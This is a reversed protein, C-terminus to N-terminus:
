SIADKKACYQTFKEFFINKQPIRGSVRAFFVIELVMLQLFEQLSRKIVLINSLSDFCSSRVIKTFFFFSQTFWYRNDWRGINTWGFVRVNASSNALSVNCAWLKNKKKFSLSWLYQIHCRPHDKKKYTSNFIKYIM